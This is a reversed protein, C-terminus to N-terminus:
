NGNCIYKKNTILNFSSFEVGSLNETIISKTHGSYKAVIGWNAHNVATANGVERFLSGEYTKCLYVFDNALIAMPDIANDHHQTTTWDRVNAEDMFVMWLKFNQYERESYDNNITFPTPDFKAIFPYKLKNAENKDNGHENNTAIPTGYIFYPGQKKWETGTPLGKVDFTTETVNFIIYKVSDMEVEDKNMLYVSQLVNGAYSFDNTKTTTVTATGDTNDVISVVDGVARLKDIIIALEDNIFINQLKRM